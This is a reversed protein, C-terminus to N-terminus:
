NSVSEERQLYRWCVYFYNLFSDPASVLLCSIFNFIFFLVVSAATMINSSPTLYTCYGSEQLFTFALGRCHAYLM